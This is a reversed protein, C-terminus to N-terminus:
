SPIVVPLSNKEGLGRSFALDETAQRLTKPGDGSSKHVVIPRESANEPTPEEQRRRVREATAAEPTLDDM